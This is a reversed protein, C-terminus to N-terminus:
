LPFAQNKKRYIRIYANLLGHTLREYEFIDGMACTGGGRRASCLGTELARRFYRNKEGAIVPSIARKSILV